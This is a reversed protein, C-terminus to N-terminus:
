PDGAGVRVGVGEVEGEAYTGEDVGVGACGPYVGVAGHGDGAVRLAAVSEGGEDLLPVGRASRTDAVPVDIPVARAAVGVGRAQQTRM